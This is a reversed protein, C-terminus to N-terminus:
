VGYPTVRSVAHGLMRPSGSCCPPTHQLCAGYSIASDHLYSAPLTQTATALNPAGELEQFKICGREEGYQGCYSIAVNSLMATGKDAVLVHLGFKTGTSSDGGGFVEVGDPSSIVINSALNTVMPRMDLQVNTDSTIGPDCRTNM